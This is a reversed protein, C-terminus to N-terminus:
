NLIVKKDNFYMVLVQWCNRNENNDVDTYFLKFDANKVEDGRAAPRLIASQVHRIGNSVMTDRNYTAHSFSFTIGEHSLKRMEKIADWLDITEQENLESMYSVFM